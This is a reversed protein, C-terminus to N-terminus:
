VYIDDHRYCYCITVKKINLFFLTVCLMQQLLEIGKKRTYYGAALGHPVFDPPEYGM